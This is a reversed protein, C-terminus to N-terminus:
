RRRWRWWRPSVGRPHEVAVTIPMGERLATRFVWRSEGTGNEWQVPVRQAYLLRRLV